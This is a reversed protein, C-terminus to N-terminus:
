ELSYKILQLVKSISRQILYFAAGNQVKIDEDNKSMQYSNETKSVLLLREVRYIYLINSECLETNWCFKNKIFHQYHHRLCEKRYKLSFFFCLFIIEGCEFFVVFLWVTVIPFNRIYIYQVSIFSTTSISNWKIWNLSNLISESKPKTEENLPM